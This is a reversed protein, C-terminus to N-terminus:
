FGLADAIASKAATAKKGAAPKAEATAGNPEGGGLGLTDLTVVDEPKDAEESADEDGVLTMDHQSVNLLKKEAQRRKDFDEWSFGPKSMINKTIAEAVAEGSVTGKDIAMATLDDILPYSLPYKDTETTRFGVTKSSMIFVFRAKDSM